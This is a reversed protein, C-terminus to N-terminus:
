GSGCCRTWQESWLPCIKVERLDPRVGGREPWGAGAGSRGVCVVVSKSRGGSSLGFGREDVICNIKLPVAPAQLALGNSGACALVFWGTLLAVRKVALRATVVTM